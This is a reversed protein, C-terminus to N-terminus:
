GHDASHGIADGGRNLILGVELHLGWVGCFLRMGAVSQTINLLPLLPEQSAETGIHPSSIQSSGFSKRLLCQDHNQELNLSPFPRTFDGSEVVEMSSTEKSSEEQLASM